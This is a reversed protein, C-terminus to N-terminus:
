KNILEDLGCTCKPRYGDLKGSYMKITNSQLECSVMHTGYDQLAYSLEKNEQEVLKVVEIAAEDSCCKGRILQYLGKM